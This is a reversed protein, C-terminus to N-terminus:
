FQLEAASARDLSGTSLRLVLQGIRKKQAGQLLDRREEFFGTPADFSGHSAISKGAGDLVEAALFDPDRALAAVMANVQDTALDWVPQVLADAQISAVLSARAVLLH